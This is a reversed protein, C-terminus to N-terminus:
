LTLFSIHHDMWTGVMDQTWVPPKAKLKTCYRVQLTGPSRKPFFEAIHKWTLNRSEKLELLLADDESTFKSKNRQPKEASRPVVAQEMSCFIDRQQMASPDNDTVTKDRIPIPHQVLKRYKQPTQIGTKTDDPSLHSPLSRHDSFRIPRTEVGSAPLSGLEARPQNVTNSSRNPNNQSVRHGLRHKSSRSFFQSFLRTAGPM